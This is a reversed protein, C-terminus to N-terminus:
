KSSCPAPTEWVLREEIQRKSKKWLRINSEPIGLDSGAQTTNKIKEAYEIAAMKESLTYRHKKSRTHQFDYGQNTSPIKYIERTDLPHMEVVNAAPSTSVNDTQVGSLPPSTEFDKDVTVATNEKRTSHRPTTICITVENSKENVEPLIFVQM